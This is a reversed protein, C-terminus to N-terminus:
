IFDVDTRKVLYTDGSQSSVEIFDNENKDLNLIEVQDGEKLTVESIKSEDKYTPISDQTVVAFRTQEAYSSAGYAIMISSILSCIFVFTIAMFLRKYSLDRARVFLIISIALAFSFIIALVSWTMGSYGYLISKFRNLRPEWVTNENLKIYCMEIHEKADTDSPSLKLVKEFAWIAKGLQKSEQHALGLNYYSAVDNPTEALSAQFKEIALVYNSDQFADIGEDFNSGAFSFLSNFLAIIFLVQKM